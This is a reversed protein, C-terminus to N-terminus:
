RRLTYKFTIGAKTTIDKFIINSKQASLSIPVLFSLLSIIKLCPNCIRALKTLMLQCPNCIRAMRTSQSAGYSARIQLGHRMIYEKRQTGKHMGKHGKHNISKRLHMGSIMLLLSEQTTSRLINSINRILQIFIM